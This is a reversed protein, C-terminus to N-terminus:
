LALSLQGSPTAPITFAPSQQESEPAPDFDIWATQPHWKPRNMDDRYYTLIRLEVRQGDIGVLKYRKRRTAGYIRGSGFGIEVLRKIHRRETHTLHCSGTIKM